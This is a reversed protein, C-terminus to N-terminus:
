KLPRQCVQVIQRDGLEQRPEAIFSRRDGIYDISKRLTMCAPFVLMRDTPEDCQSNQYGLRVMSPAMLRMAQEWSKVRFYLRGLLQQGAPLLRFSLPLSTLSRDGQPVGARTCGAVHPSRRGPGPILLAFASGGSYRLLSNSSEASFSLRDDRCRSTGSCRRPCVRPGPGASCTSSPPPSCGPTAMTGTPRGARRTRMHSPRRATNRLWATPFAQVRLRQKLRQNEETLRAIERQKNLCEAGGNMAMVAGATAGVAGSGPPPWVLIGAGGGVTRWSVSGAWLSRILSGYM